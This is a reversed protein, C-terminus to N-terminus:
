FMIHHKVTMEPQVSAPISNNRLLSPYSLLVSNAVSIVMEFASGKTALWVDTTLACCIEILYSMLPMLLNKTCAHHDNLM